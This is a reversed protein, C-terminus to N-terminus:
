KDQLLAFVNESPDKFWAIDPGMNAALGRLIGKDDQPAPLNDYHEFKVGKSTLEDISIDINEVVLNVVTFSAPSHDEKEYVFISTGGPLALYLGMPDEKVSLGLTERYFQKAQSLKNVSLGSFAHLVNM